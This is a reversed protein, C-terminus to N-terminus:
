RYGQSKDWRPIHVSDSKTELGAVKRKDRLPAPVPAVDGGVQLLAHSRLGAHVDRMVVGGKGQM